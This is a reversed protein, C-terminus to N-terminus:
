SLCVVTEPRHGVGVIMMGFLNWKDLWRRGYLLM